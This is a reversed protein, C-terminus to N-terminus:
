CLDQIQASRYRTFYECMFNNKPFYAFSKAYSFLRILHIQIQVFYFFIKCSIEAFLNEKFLPKNEYANTTVFYPYYSQYVRNQSM